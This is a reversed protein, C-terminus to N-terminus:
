VLQEKYEQHRKVEKPLFKSVSTYDAPAMNKWSEPVDINLIEPVMFGKLWGILPTVGPQYTVQKHYFLLGDLEGDFALPSWIQSHIDKHNCTSKQLEHFPMPNIQSKEVLKPFEVLKSHLWYFRFETDSDYVYHGNWCIVDLIHYLRNKEDFICDLVTIAHTSTQKRYGGPLHSPFGDNVCHGSRAYAKTIGNCAVVLSRKGVPCIAMLWNHNLDEPVEVFWESLMLQNQYKKDKRRYNKVKGCDM